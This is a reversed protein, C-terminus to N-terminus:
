PQTARATATATARADMTAFAETATTTHGRGNDYYNITSGNSLTQHVPDEKAEIRAKVALADNITFFVFLGLVLGIAITAISVFFKVFSRM